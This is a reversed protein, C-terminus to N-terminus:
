FPCTELKYRSGPSVLIIGMFCDTSIIIAFPLYITYVPILTKDRAIRRGQM